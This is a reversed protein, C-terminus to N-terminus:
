KIKQANEVDQLMTDFMLTATLYRTCLVQKQQALITQFKDANNLRFHIFEILQSKHQQYSDWDQTWASPYLFCDHYMESYCCRDPLVPIVNALVSEAVGLGLNEHLSCSFQVQHRAMTHYYEHKSLKLKQTILWPQDMSASLDEAINPQKDANYRHPWIVGKQPAHDIQMVQKMHTIISGHPQGGTLALHHYQEPIQLNKLFMNRHFDTAFWNSTCAHFMAREAEWPWPKQMRYGLIDSPDYSGAHWIGHIRWNFGMLDNMYRIQLIVPNWTDTFLFVDNPTTIGEDFLTLFNVLQSSKWRNTDGFNLFAGQTTQTTTQEGMIVHIKAQTGRQDRTEQLAQPVYNHWQETYRNDLPELGFIFININDAM